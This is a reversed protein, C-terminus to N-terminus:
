ETPQQSKAPAQELVPSNHSVTLRGDPQREALLTVFYEPGLVASRMGSGHQRVVLPARQALGREGRKTRAARESALIEALEQEDPARLKGTAKDRVVRLAQQEQASAPRAQELTSDGAAADAAGAAGAALALATALLGKSHITM